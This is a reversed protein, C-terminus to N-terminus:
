RADRRLGINHPFRWTGRRGPVYFQSKTPLLGMFPAAPRCGQEHPQKSGTFGAPDIGPLVEVVHEPPAHAMRDIAQPLEEGVRPLWARMFLAQDQRGLDSFCRYGGSERDLIAKQFDEYLMHVKLYDARENLLSVSLPRLLGARRLM